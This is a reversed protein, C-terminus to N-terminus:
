KKRFMHIKGKYSDKVMDVFESDGGIYYYHAAKGHESIEHWEETRVQIEFRAANLVTIPMVDFHHSRYGNPKNWFEHNYSYRNGSAVVLAELYKKVAELAITNVVHLKEDEEMKDIERGCYTKLIVRMAVLDNLGTVDYGDIHNAIYERLSILNSEESEGYDNALMKRVKRMTKGRHKSMREQMEVDFGMKFLEAEIKKKVKRVIDRTFMLRESVEAERLTDVVYDHIDPHNVKFAHMLIDGALGPHGFLEAIPAYIMEGAKAEKRLAELAETKDKFMRFIPHGVPSIVDNLHDGDCHTVAYDVIKALVALPADGNNLIPVYESLDAGKRDLETLKGFTRLEQVLREDKFAPTTVVGTGPVVSTGANALTELAEHKVVHYNLIEDITSNVWARYVDSLPDNVLKPEVITTQVAKGKVERIHNEYIKPVGLREHFKMAIRNSDLTKPPRKTRERLPKM